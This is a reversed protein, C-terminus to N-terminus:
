PFNLPHPIPSRFRFISRFRSPIRRSAVSGTSLLLTLQEQRLGPRRGTERPRTGAGRKGRAGAPSRRGVGYQEALEGVRAAIRAQYEKPAYAGRRYMDAYRGTLEPHTERLWRLFWERTGPRLHL